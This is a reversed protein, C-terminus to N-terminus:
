PAEGTGGLQCSKAHELGLEKAWTAISKKVGTVDAGIARIKDAVKEWVLPVGLFLTPRAAQLRDKLSGAKLDYPRAFYATTWAESTATTVVPCVIDVMMGAVHSLPLYSLFREQQATSGIGCSKQMLNLVTTSEFIINDHSIM